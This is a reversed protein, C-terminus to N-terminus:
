YIVNPDREIPKNNKICMEVIAIVDESSGSFPFPFPEGFTERYLSIRKGAKEKIKDKESIRDKDNM